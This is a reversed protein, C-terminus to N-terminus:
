RSLNLLLLLLDQAARQMGKKNLHGGYSTYEQPLYDFKKGDQSFTAYKGDPRLSEAKALDFVPEKGSYHMRLLDNYQNRKVDDSYGDPSRGILRKILAKPGTQIGTLPVTVHIFKTKTYKQKLYEMKEVYYDFVKQVDAGAMIDVYCFKFFAVDAKNGLGHDMIEVFADVKSKPDYNKGIPAHAFLPEDFTKPDSTEVVKVRTQPNKQLIDNLGEVINFGVSQHGFFIRKASLEQWQSQSVASLMSDNDGKSITGSDQCAAVLVSLIFTCILVKISKRYMVVERDIFDKNWCIISISSASLGAM